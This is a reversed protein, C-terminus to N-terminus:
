GRRPRRAESPALPHAVPIRRRHSGRPARDAPVPDLDRRARARPAHRERADAPRHPALAHLPRFDGGSRRRGEQRQRARASRRRSSRRRQRAAESQLARRRDFRLAHDGTRRLQDPRRACRALRRDQAPADMSEPEALVIAGFTDGGLRALTDGPRFDRALRRAVALLASDGISLGYSDNVSQFEDIDIVM